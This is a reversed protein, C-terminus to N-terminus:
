LSYFLNGPQSLAAQLHTNYVLTLADVRSSLLTQQTTLYTYQSTPPDTFGNKLIFDALLKETDTLTGKATALEQKAAEM